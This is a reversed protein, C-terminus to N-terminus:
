FNLLNSVTVMRFKNKFKPLVSELLLIIEKHRGIGELYDHLNVISGNKTKRLTRKIAPRINIRKVFGKKKLQAGMWDKPVSDSFIVKKNLKLCILFGNLGWKFGPFRFLNTKVNIKSLEEDCRLIDKKIFKKTKFISRKHSYTHNALEHGEKIM